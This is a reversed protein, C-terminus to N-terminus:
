VGVINSFTRWLGVVSDHLMTKSQIMRWAANKQVNRLKLSPTVGVPNLYAVGDYKRDVHTNMKENFAFATKGKPGEVKVTLGEVTVKVKEPIVVPLKGIRSM